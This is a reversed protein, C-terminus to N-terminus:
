QNFCCSEQRCDPSFCDVSVVMSLCIGQTTGGGLIGTAFSPKYPDGVLFMTTRTTVTVPLPSCGLVYRFKIVKLEFRSIQGKCSAESGFISGGKFFSIKNPCYNKTAMFLLGSTSESSLISCYM